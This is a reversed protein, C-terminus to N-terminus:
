PSTFGRVLPSRATLTLSGRSGALTLTLLERGARTFGTGAVTGGASVRGLSSISGRARIRFMRGADAIHSPVAALKGTLTGSLSLCRERGTCHGPSLVVRLARASGSGSPRLDVRVGGREGAYRGSGHTVSGSFADRAPVRSAAAAACGTALAGAVTVALLSVPVSRSRM